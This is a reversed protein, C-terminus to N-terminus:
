HEASFLPYALAVTAEVACVNPLVFNEFFSLGCFFSIYFNSFFNSLFFRCSYQTIVGSHMQTEGCDM